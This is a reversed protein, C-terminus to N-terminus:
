YFTNLLEYKLEILDAKDLCDLITKIVDYKEDLHSKIPSTM